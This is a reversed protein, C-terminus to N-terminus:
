RSVRLSIAVEQVENSPLFAKDVPTPPPWDANFNKLTKQRPAGVNGDSSGAVTACGDFIVLGDELPM